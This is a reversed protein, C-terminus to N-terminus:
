TQRGGEVLQDIRQKSLGLVHCIDSNELEPVGHGKITDALLLKPKASDAQFMSQLAAHLSEVDHGQCRRCEWGFAEFRAEVNHWSIIDDCKGLMSKANCDVILYLRSLELQGALMIAEWVAGEYLEGDGHLVIVKADKKQTRLALAMGCALGLGHGLSGNLTEFTGFGAAPIASLIAEPHAINELEQVPFFGLDALIPFLALSGHGKSAIFRDRKPCLYTPEPLSLFGAYFLVSLLDCAPLCSAIRVEPVRGHLLLTQQWVWDAKCRLFNIQEESMEM